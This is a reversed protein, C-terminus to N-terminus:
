ICGFLYISFVISELKKRKKWWVTHTKEATATAAEMKGKRQNRRQESTQKTRMM